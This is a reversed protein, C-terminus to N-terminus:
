FVLEQWALVEGAFTIDEIDDEDDKWEYFLHGTIDSSDKGTLGYDNEMLFDAGARLLATTDEPLADESEGVEFGAYINKRNAKARDEVWAITFSQIGTKKMLAKLQTKAPTMTENAQFERLKQETFTKWM